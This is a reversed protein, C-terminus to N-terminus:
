VLKRLGPLKKGALFELMAGGGTSVFTNKNATLQRKNIAEITEGGGIIIRAKSKFIEKAIKNTGKSFEKSEFYGMPGNWIITEAEKIIGSFLAITKPGIDMIKSNSWKYDIPLIIKSNEIKYGGGKNELDLKKSKDKLKLNLIKGAAKLYNGDTLSQAVDIGLAKLFTNAVAGGILIYDASKLFNKIVPLKTEIKAGGIIIILPKKPQTLVQSLNKVEQELHLGAYSPLYNQIADISAAKRHSTAFSENVYVDTLKALSKALRKCNKNEGPNFRLNELMVIKSDPIQFRSNPIDKLFIISLQYNATLINKGGTRQARNEAILLKELKNKVPLLSMKPSSRGKPRGLHGILIIKKVKKKLLYKITPLCAKLRTDDALRGNKIPVDFDCRVLVNKDKWVSLRKISKISKITKIKM